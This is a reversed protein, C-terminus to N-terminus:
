GEGRAEEGSTNEVARNPTEKIEDPDTTAKKFNKLALGIGRGLEPLKTAGFILILIISIIILEQMGLGFM